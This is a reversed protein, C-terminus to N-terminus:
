EEDGKMARTIDSKNKGAQIAEIAKRMRSSQKPDHPNSALAMLALVAKDRDNADIDMLAEYVAYDGVGPALMRATRAANLANNNVGEGALAQALHYLNPADLKKLRYAKLFHARAQAVAAAKADGDLAKASAILARALLHYAEFSTEDAAVYTKLDASAAEPDGFLLEARALALRLAPSNGADGKLGRLQALIAQGQPKSPCTRLLSANLLYDSMSDPLAELKISPDPMDKTPVSLVPMGRLYRELIKKLDSIAIGTAPEFATIPDEGAAVRAFYANFRKTRESDSLMYHALLWSQSYFRRVDAQDVDKDGAHRFTPKLVDEFRIWDPRAMVQLRGPEGQGITIKGREVEATAMYEAFGEIYWQPYYTTAYQFMLHHAYEHFLIVLGPDSGRDGWSMSSYASSGESCRFYVGAVFDSFEPRLKRIDRQRALVHIDFKVQARAHASDAGLVLLSLYRFVELQRVYDRIKSEPGDSTVVFHESEARIWAGAHASSGLCAGLVAALVVIWGAGVRRTASM